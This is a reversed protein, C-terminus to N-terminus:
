WISTLTTINVFKALIYDDTALIHCNLSPNEYWFLFRSLLHLLRLSCNISISFILQEYLFLFVYSYNWNAWNPSM